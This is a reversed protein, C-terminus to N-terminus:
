VAALLRKYTNLYAATVVHQDFVQVAKARCAEQMATWTEASAHNLEGLKAAVAVIEQLPFLFGEKGESIIDGMGGVQYALVPTGCAVSEIVTTPL